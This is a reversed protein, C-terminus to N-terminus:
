FWFNFQGLRVFFEFFDGFKLLRPLRLATCRFGFNIYLLDLPLLSLLDWWFRGRTVYNRVLRRRDQPAATPLSSM